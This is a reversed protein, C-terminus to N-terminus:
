GREDDFKMRMQDVNHERAEMEAYFERYQRTYEYSDKFIHKAAKVLQPEYIEANQLEKQYNRNFPCGVCGTRKMGMKTYCDSHRVGFIEDYDIEDQNEYWFLPRYYSVDGSDYCGKYAISRIGGEAKRIGVIVLDINEQKAYMKAVNKKAYTCCKPSIKFTPPHSILFEKLYKQAKINLTKFEYQNCWWKLRSKLNPYEEMLVDFPKDEFKFGKKQFYYLCESVYKSLFPQGHQRCSVPITKEAKIREIEIGYKEELESIHRKTANWEVGTDFWVYRVKKQEDTKYILDLMIDSDKGGSVSCMIREHKDLVSKAKVFSDFITVNRSGALELAEQYTM